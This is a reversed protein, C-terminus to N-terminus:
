YVHYKANLSFHRTHSSFKTKAKPFDTIISTHSGCTVREWTPFATQRLCGLGWRFQSELSTKAVLQDWAKRPMGIGHVRCPSTSAAEPIRPIGIAVKFTIMGGPMFGPWSIWAWLGSPVRTGQLIHSHAHNSSHLQNPLGTVFYFVLSIIMSYQLANTYYYVYAQRKKLCKYLWPHKLVFANLTIALKKPKM